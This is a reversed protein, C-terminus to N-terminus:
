VKFWDVLNIWFKTMSSIDKKCKGIESIPIWYIGEMERSDYEIEGGDYYAIFFKVLEKQTDYEFTKSGIEKFEKVSIKLEEEVGRVIAEEYSEGSLIHEGLFCFKGSDHDKKFSRQTLLVTGNEKDVITFQVTRHMLSPNSHCEDRTAHGIVEDRENVVDLIEM